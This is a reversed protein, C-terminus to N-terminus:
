EQDRAGGLPSEEGSFGGALGDDYVVKLARVEKEDDKRGGKQSIKCSVLCQLSSASLCQRTYNLLVLM